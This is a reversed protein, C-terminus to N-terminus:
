KTIGAKMEDLRKLLEKGNKNIECSLSDIRNEIELRIFETYGELRSKM